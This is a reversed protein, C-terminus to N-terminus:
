QFHNAHLAFIESMTDSVNGSRFQFSALWFSETESKPCGLFVHMDEQSLILM